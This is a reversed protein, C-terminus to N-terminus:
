NLKEHFLLKRQSIIDKNRDFIYIRMYYKEKLPNIVRKGKILRFKIFYPVGKPVHLMTSILCCASHMTCTLFVTTELLLGNMNAPM